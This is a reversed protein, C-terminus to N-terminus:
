CRCPSCRESAVSIPSGVHLPDGALYARARCTPSRHSQKPSSARVVAAAEPSLHLTGSRWANPMAAPLRRPRRVIRFGDGDYSVANGFRGRLHADRKELMAEFVPELEGPSSSIVKLVEADRDAAAALDRASRLENLLRTNEIAIM